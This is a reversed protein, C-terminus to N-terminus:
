LISKEIIERYQIFGRYNRCWGGEILFSGRSGIRTKVYQACEEDSMARACHEFPSLHKSELLKDHLEIDKQYDHEKGEEGVVTYSVRACRATAIKVKWHQFAEDAMLVYKSADFQSSDIKNGFPIHWEGEALQEPISENRADYIAEALAMMHIEAQGKNIILWALNDQLPPLAELYPLYEPNDIIQLEKILDKRSRSKLTILNETLTGDEGCTPIKYEYYPCRLQFFNEWGEGTGTVLVKHWMFPELLRNCLQKTVNSNHLLTAQQVALNRAELWKNILLQVESTGTLYDTGQMGSHKSQWAIPIFPDKEVVEVMKKFPIARSSASNKSLARHTNLEALISRPLVLELTTIRHGRPSISDAVVKASIRTKDQKM